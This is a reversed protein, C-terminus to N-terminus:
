SRARLGALEPSRWQDFEEVLKLIHALLPSRDKPRFSMIIPSTIKPEDLALYVVDDRGLRRVSSPVLAIGVDAAVLGLATQLERVEFGVKPELGVKRYFSLVQDAYSPRPAKPYLILPVDATHKLKLSGKIRSLVHGQPVAVSLKEERIVRRTLGDDEFLLRGFGIDIRGIKLAAAQELTTLETLVIEIDPATLRFRRILEPLVDYLTPAVFGIGFQRKKGTGIRRTMARIEDTRQLVQLAQEFFYRGSDTLTIPRGRHLLQTGLEEELQQIQRSLPPQAIHLKESARSFSREGAVTVFYRLHRLEM